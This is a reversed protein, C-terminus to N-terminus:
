TLCEYLASFKFTPPLFFILISLLVSLFFLPFSSFFSALISPPFFSFFSLSSPLFSLFFGLYIYSLFSPCFSPLFTPLSYVWISSLLSSFTLRYALHSSCLFNPLFSLLFYFSLFSIFSFLFCVCIFPLFSRLGSFLLSLLFSFFGYPLFSLISCIFLLPLFSNVRISLCKLFSPFYSVTFPVLVPPLLYSLYSPPCTSYLVCAIFSMFSSLLMCTPLFSPLLVCPEGEQWQNTYCFLLGDDVGTNGM